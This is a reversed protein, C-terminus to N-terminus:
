VGFTNFVRMKVGEWTNLKPRVDLYFNLGQSAAGTERGSYFDIVYEVKKGCRDIVWDHRDFPTQYGLVMSNWRARPTLAKSDGAFSVLRPGGCAESGRGQEWKKIETWARENVANHIPIISHMDKADADHGKRKMANFFMEQSPYIWNGSEKDHGTDKESNAPSGHSAATALVRKTTDPLEQPHDPLARPITSIERDTSLRYMKPRKADSRPPTATWTQWSLADLSFRNDAALPRTTAPGGAVHPNAPDQQGRAKAAELWKERTKQDVPCKDAADVVDPPM